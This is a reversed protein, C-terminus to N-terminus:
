ETVGEVERLQAEILYRESDKIINERLEKENNKEKQGKSGEKKHLFCLFEYSITKKKDKQAVKTLM